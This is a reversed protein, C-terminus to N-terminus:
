LVCNGIPTTNRQVIGRCQPRSRPAACWLLCRPWDHDVLQLMSTCHQVSICYSLAHRESCRLTCPPNRELLHDISRTCLHRSDEPGVIIGLM